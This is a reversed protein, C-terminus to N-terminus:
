KFTLCTLHSLKTSNGPAIKVHKIWNYFSSPHPLIGPLSQRTCSFGKPSIFNLRFAFDRLVNSYPENSSANRRKLLEMILADAPTVPDPLKIDLRARKLEQKYNTLEESKRKSQTAHWNIQKQLGHITKRKLTRIEANLTEIQERLSEILRKQDTICDIQKQIVERCGVHLSDPKPEPAGKSLESAVQDRNFNFRFIIM